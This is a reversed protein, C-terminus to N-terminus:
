YHVPFVIKRPRPAEPWGVLLGQPQNFDSQEIANKKMPAKVRALTVRRAPARRRPVSKKDNTNWDRRTMMATARISPSRM